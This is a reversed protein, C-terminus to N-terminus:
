DFEHASQGQNDQVMLTHFFNHYKVTWKEPIVGLYTSFISLYKFLSASFRGFVDKTSHVKSAIQIGSSEILWNFTPSYLFKVEVRECFM